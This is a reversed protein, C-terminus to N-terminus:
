HAALPEVAQAQSTADRQAQPSEPESPRARSTETRSTVLASVAAVNILLLMAGFVLAFLADTLWHKSLYVRTFAEVVGAAAFGTWLGARWARSLSPLLVIVLVLVVSYIGLLRGVGGSPYTGLTTPPHGRDVVGALFKQLFKEAVFAAVITVAPIWRRGKYASVLILFAFFTVMEVIPTNGVMTFKENLRTFLNESVRPHVRDFVPRDVSGELAKALFGMALGVCATLAWGFLCIVVAGPVRGFRHAAAAGWATPGKGVASGREYGLLGIGITLLTLLGGIVALVLV